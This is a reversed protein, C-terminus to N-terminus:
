LYGSHMILLRSYLIDQLYANNGVNIRLSINDYIAIFSIIKKPHVSNVANLLKCIVLTQYNSMKHNKYM